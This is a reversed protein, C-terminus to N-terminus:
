TAAQTLRRRVGQAAVVLLAVLGLRALLVPVMWELRATFLGDGILGTHPLAFTAAVTVAAGLRWAVAPGTRLGAGHGREVYAFWAVAAAAHAYFLVTQATGLREGLDLLDPSPSPLRPLVVLAAVLDAVAAVAFLGALGLVGWLARQWMPGTVGVM